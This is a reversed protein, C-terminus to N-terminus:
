GTFRVRGPRPRAAPARALTTPPAAGTATITFRVSAYFFHPHSTRAAPFLEDCEGTVLREGLPDVGPAFATTVVMTTTWRGDPGPTVSAAGFAPDGQGRRVDDDTLITRAASTPPCLDGSVTIVTGVPGSGPTATMTPVRGQADTVTFEFAWYSVLYQTVGIRQICNARIPVVVGPLLAASVPATVSWAGTPGPLVDIMHRDFPGSVAVLVYLSPTCGDGGITVLTGPPGSQPTVTMPRIMQSEAPGGSVVVTAAMCLLGVGLRAVATCSAGGGRRSRMGSRSPRM